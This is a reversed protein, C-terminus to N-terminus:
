ANRGLSAAPVQGAKGSGNLSHDARGLYVFPSKV